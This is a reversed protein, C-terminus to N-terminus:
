KLIEKLKSKIRNIQVGVHNETIGVIEAIEKYAYDELYLSIIAKEGSNLIRLANYMREENEPLDNNYTPHFKDPITEPHDM